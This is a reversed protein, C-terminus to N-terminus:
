PLLEATVSAGNLNATYKIAIPQSKAIWVTTGGNIDESTIEVKWADYSRASVSVSESGVVTLHMLKPKRTQLDFNLFSVKYGLALPLAAFSQLAGASDAFLPGGLDVDVKKVEGSKIMTMEGLARNGTFTLDIHLPGQRIHRERLLLTGKQMVVTDNGEGMPTQTSETAVWMGAQERIETTIELNMTQGQAVIAAKYKSVAPVLDRVPSPINSDAALVPLSNICVTIGVAVAVLPFSPHM